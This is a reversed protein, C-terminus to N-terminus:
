YTAGLTRAGFDQNALEFQEQQIGSVIDGYYNNTISHPGPPALQTPGSPPPTWYPHSADPLFGAYRQSLRDWGAREADMAIGRSRDWSRDRYNVAAGRWNRMAGIPDGSALMWLSQGAEGALRALGVIDSLGAHIMRVVTRVQAFGDKMTGIHEELNAM